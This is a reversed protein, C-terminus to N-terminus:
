QSSGQLLPGMTQKLLTADLQWCTTTQLSMVTAKYRGNGQFIEDGFFNGAKLNKRTTETSMQVSYCLGKDIVYMKEGLQDQEIINEGRGFTIEDMIAALKNIGDSDLYQFYPIEALVKKLV